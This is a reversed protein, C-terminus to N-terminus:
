EKDYPEGEAAPARARKYSFALVIITLIYPIMSIFQSPIGITQLSRSLSMFYSFIFGAGAAGLVTWGGFINAALAIFGRGSMMGSVFRSGIGISLYAGGLGALVGSIFVGIFRMKYVDIGASESAEPHEGCSRLRLGFPTKFLVIHAIIITAFMIYVIANQTGIIDGIFPIKSIIPISINPLGAVEASTGKSGWILWTLFRTLSAALLNIGVGVLIQNANYWVSLVALILSMLGGVLGALILGLWPSGIFFSVAVATWAGMLGMGELGINIIGSGESYAGGIAPLVIPVASGIMGSLVAVSVLDSLVSM